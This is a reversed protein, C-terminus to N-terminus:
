SHISHQLPYTTSVPSYIEDIFAVFVFEDANTYGHDSLTVTVDVPTGPTPTGAFTGLSNCYPIQQAFAANKEARRVRQLQRM